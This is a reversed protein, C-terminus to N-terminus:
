RAWRLFWGAVVLGALVPIAVIWPGGEGLTVYVAAWVVETTTLGALVASLAAVWRSRSGRATWALLPLLAPAGVIAGGYTLLLFATGALVVGRILVRADFRVPRRLM